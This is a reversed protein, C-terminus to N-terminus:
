SVRLGWGCMSTVSQTEMWVSRWPSIRAGGVSWQSVRLGWGCMSTVSQSKTWVSRRPSIRAGGVSWQSM